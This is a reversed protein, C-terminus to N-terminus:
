FKAHIGFSILDERITFDMEPAGLEDLEMSEEGYFTRSWELRLALMDTIDSKVGFGVRPGGFAEDETQKGAGDVKASLEFNTAQYGLTGYLSSSQNINTGALFSVGYSLERTMSLASSGSKEKYEAASDALNGEFGIYGGPMAKEYGLRLTAGVGSVSNSDQSADEFSFESNANVWDLSAGTYLGGNASAAGTFALGAALTTASIAHKIKM